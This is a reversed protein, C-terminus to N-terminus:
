LPFPLLSKMACHAVKPYSTAMKCWFTITDVSDFLDKVSSDNQFDIFQEQTELDETNMIKITAEFSKRLLKFM